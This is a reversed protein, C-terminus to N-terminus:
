GARGVALGALAAALGLLVSGLANAGAALLSGQELLRATEYTFTSFTTYGGIFGIAVLPRVPPPLVRTEGLGMVLGLLFSGSLNIVFTGVPFATSMRGGIWTGVAYRLISGAFGGVGVWLAQSV